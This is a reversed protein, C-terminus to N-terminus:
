FKKELPWQFHLFMPMRIANLSFLHVSPPVTSISPNIVRSLDHRRFNTAPQERRQGQGTEWSLYDPCVTDVFQIAVCCTQLLEM